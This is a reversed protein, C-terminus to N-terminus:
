ATLSFIVGTDPSHGPLSNFKPPEENIVRHVESELEEVNFEERSDLTLDESSSNLYAVMNDIVQAKSLSVPQQSPSAPVGRVHKYQAYVSVSSPVPVEIKPGSDSRNYFSSLSSVGSSVSNVV